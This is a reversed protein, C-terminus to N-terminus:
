LAKVKDLALKGTAMINAWEQIFRSASATNKTTKGPGRTHTKQRRQTKTLMILILAM